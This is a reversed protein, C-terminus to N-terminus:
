KKQQLFKVKYKKTVVKVKLARKENEEQIAKEALAIEEEARQRAEIKEKKIRELTIAREQEEEHLLKAEM